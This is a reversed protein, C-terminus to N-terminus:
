NTVLPPIPLVRPLTAAIRDEGGWASFGFNLHWRFVVDLQVVHIAQDRKKILCACVPGATLWGTLALSM